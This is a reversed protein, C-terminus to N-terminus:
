ASRRCSPSRREAAGNPPRACRRRIRVCGADRRPSRSGASVRPAKAARAEMWSARLRSALAYIALEVFRQNAHCPPLRGDFDKGGSMSVVIDDCEDFVWSIRERAAELVTQKLFNQVM